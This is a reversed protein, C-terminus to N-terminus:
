ARRGYHEKLCDPCIGHTFDADTRSKVYQELIEWEGEANRIKKCHSCIPLLGSLTKVEAQLQEVLQRNELVETLDRIEEIVSEVEGQENRLPSALIEEWVTTGDAQQHEHLLRISRGSEFVYRVPCHDTEVPCPSRSNHTTEHCTGGIIGGPRDYARQAAENADLIRFDRDIVLIPEQISNIIDLYYRNNKM